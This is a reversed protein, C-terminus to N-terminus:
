RKGGKPRGVPNRKKRGNIMDLYERKSIIGAMYDQWADEVDRDGTAVKVKVEPEEFYNPTRCLEIDEKWNSSQNWWATTERSSKTATTTNIVPTKSTVQPKVSELWTMEPIQVTIDKTEFILNQSYDYINIFIDDKKNIILFVYFDNDNLSQLIKDYFATDVGSPTVGMNVHSHGQFRISNFVTDDPISMLWNTYEQQDTNVTVATVQQPYVLIDTVTYVNNEKSITGHWGVEGSYYNVLHKMKIYAQPTFRVVPKQVNAENPVTLDVNFSIKGNQTRMNSLYTAFDDILKTFDAIPRIYKM